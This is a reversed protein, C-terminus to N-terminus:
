GTWASLVELVDGFAVSGDGDVDAPCPEGPPCAGFAALVALLDGFGVAGDGDVDAPLVPVGPGDGVIALELSLDVALTALEATLLVGATQGPPLVTDLEFPVADFGVGPFPGPDEEALALSVALDVAAAGDEDLTLTGALPLVAPVTDGEIPQGLVEGEILLLVPVTVDITWTGPDDAPTATGAAPGAQAAELRTLSAEGFPLEIPVGGPFLSDPSFTRFTDYLLEITLGLTADTEPLLDLTLDEVAIAGSAPDGVLSLSGAVDADVPGALTPTLDLDVPQNGSGGFIGPRTLTGDPNEVEDFDGILFGALAASLSASGTTASPAPDITITRVPPDGAVAPSAAAVALSAAALRPALARPVIPTM